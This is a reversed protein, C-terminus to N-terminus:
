VDDIGEVELGLLIQIMPDDTSKYQDMQHARYVAYASYTSPLLEARTNM